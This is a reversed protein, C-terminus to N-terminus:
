LINSKINFYINLNTFILSEEVYLRSKIQLKKQKPGTNELCM